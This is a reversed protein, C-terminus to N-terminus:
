YFLPDSGVDKTASTGIIFYGDAGFLNDAPLVIGSMSLMGGARYSAEYQVLYGDDDLGAAANTITVRDGVELWPALVSEFGWLRRYRGLRDRLFGALRDAQVKTQIYDNHAL